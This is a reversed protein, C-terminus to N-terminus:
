ETWDPRGTLAAAAAQAAKQHLTVDATCIDGSTSKEEVPQDEKSRRCMAQMHVGLRTHRLVLVVFSWRLSGIVSEVSSAETHGRYRRRTTRFRPHHTSLSASPSNCYM